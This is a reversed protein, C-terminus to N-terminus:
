EQQTRRQQAVLADVVANVGDRWPPLSSLGLAQQIKQCDLRSNKPRKAAAPYDDSSIALVQEASVRLPMGQEAARTLVQHAVGYWSAEGAAAVHYMGSRPRQRILQATIDALLAASTPAGVQDAVVGLQERQQALRLITKVFNQGDSSFVWSSRLIYWPAEHDMLAATLLREGALKSRGYANIPAPVDSEQWPRESDGSFVYDTSFHVCGAGIARAAQALAEPALANVQMAWQEASEAQDVATYAAANVIWDPRVSAVAAQIAPRDTLDLAQSDLAMLEALPALSHQLARGVQGNAGILLIRM